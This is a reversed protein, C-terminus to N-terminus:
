VFSAKASKRESASFCPVTRRPMAKSESFLSAEARRRPACIPWTPMSSPGAKLTSIGRLPLADLMTRSWSCSVVPLSKDAKRVVTIEFNKGALKATFTNKLEPEEYPANVATKQALSDGDAAEGQTKKDGCAAFFCSSLLFLVVCLFTQKM